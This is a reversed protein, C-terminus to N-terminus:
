LRKLAKVQRFINKDMILLRSILSTIKHNTLEKSHVCEYLRLNIRFETMLNEPCFNGHHPIKLTTRIEIHINSVHPNQVSNM